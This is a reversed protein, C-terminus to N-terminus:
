FYSVFGCKPLNLRFDLFPNFFGLKTFPRQGVQIFRAKRLRLGVPAGPCFFSLNMEHRGLASLAQIHQGRQDRPPLQERGLEPLGRGRREKSTEQAEKQFADASWQRHNEVISGDVFRLFDLGHQSEQLLLSERKM